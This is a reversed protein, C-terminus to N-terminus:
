KHKKGSVEKQSMALKLRRQKFVEGIRRKM